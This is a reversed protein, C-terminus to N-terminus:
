RGTLLEFLIVGLSYLDSRADVARPSGRYAELHEPAMYGLTGGVAAAGPGGARADEALNFDLLMPQGEDTLLVNAPKLDRHLVGREHAHALGDALCGGLWVVSEVYSLGELRKLTANPVTSAPKKEQGGRGRSQPP